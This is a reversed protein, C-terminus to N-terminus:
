PDSVSFSLSKSPSVVSSSTFSSLFSTLCAAASIPRNRLQNVWCSSASLISVMIKRRKRLKATAFDWITTLCALIESKELVLHIKKDLMKKQKKQNM